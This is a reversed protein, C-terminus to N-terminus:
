LSKDKPSQAQAAECIHFDVTPIPSIMSSKSCGM